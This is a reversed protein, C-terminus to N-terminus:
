TWLHGVAAARILGAQWPLLKKSNLIRVIPQLVVRDSEFTTVGLNVAAKQELKVHHAQVRMSQIMKPSMEIMSLSQGTATRLKFPGEFEWGLRVAELRAIAM